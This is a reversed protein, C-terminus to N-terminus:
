DWVARRIEEVTFEKVLEEKEAESIQHFNLNADMSCSNRALLQQQFHDFIAKKMDDVKEVKKGNIDLHVIENIRRRRNICGHFFKTNADGEKLWKIRSKQRQISCNLNSFKYLEDANERKEEIEKCSLGENQEKIELKNLVAKSTKIREGLNQSHMKHWEKLGDKIPKFKEKLVFMGWDEM